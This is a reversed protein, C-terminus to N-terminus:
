TNRRWFGGGAVRANRVWTRFATAGREARNAALGVRAGTNTAVPARDLSRALAWYSGPRQGRREARIVHRAYATPLNGTVVGRTGRLERAVSYGRRLGAGISAGRARAAAIRRAGATVVRGTITGAAVGAAGAGSRVVHGVATRLNRRLSPNRAYRYGARAGQGTHRAASRVARGIALFNIKQIIEEAVAPADDDVKAPLDVKIAVAPEDDAKNLSALDIGQGTEDTKLIRLPDGNAGKKVFSIYNIRADVLENAKTTM